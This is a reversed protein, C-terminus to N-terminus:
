LRGGNEAPKEAAAAIEDVRRVDIRLAVRFRDDAFGDAAVAGPAIADVFQRTYFDVKKATKDDLGDVQRVTNQMWRATLLYSQKIYDFVQNDNWAADKFRRDDKAPAIVPTPEQGMMRAATSQWLNMYDQWLSVQAELLKAPDGMMRTTLELFARGLNATDPGVSFDGGGFEGKSPEGGGFKPASFKQANRALFDQLLRQSQEAIRSMAEALEQPDQTNANSPDTKATTGPDNKAMM